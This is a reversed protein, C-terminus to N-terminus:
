VFMLLSPNINFECLKVGVLDKDMSDTTSPTDTFYCDETPESVGGYSPLSYSLTLYQFLVETFM